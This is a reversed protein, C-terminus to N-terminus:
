AALWTCGPLPLNRAVWFAIVLVPIAPLLRPPVRPLRRRWGALRALALAWGAVLIPAVVVFFLNYDAAAVPHGHLLQHAARLSGCGPCDLSTAWRFPCLPYHGPRAPDVLYLRVCAAVALAGVAAFGTLRARPSWVRPSWFGGAASAPAVGPAVPRTVTM